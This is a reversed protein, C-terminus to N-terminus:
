DGDGQNQALKINSLEWLELAQKYGEEEERHQDKYLFLVTKIIKMAREFENEKMLFSALLTLYVPNDPKISFAKLINLEAKELDELNKSQYCVFLGVFADDFNSKLRCAEEFAGIAESILDQEGLLSAMEYYTSGISVYAHAISNLNPNSNKRELNVAEQYVKLAKKFLEKADFIGSMAISKKAIASLAVGQQLAKIFDLDSIYEKM